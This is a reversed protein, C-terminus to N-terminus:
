SRARLIRSFPAFAPVRRTAGLAIAGMMIMLNTSTWGVSRMIGTLVIAFIGIM